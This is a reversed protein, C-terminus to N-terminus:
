NQILELRRLYDRIEERLFRAFHQTALNLPRNQAFVLSMTSEIEPDVLRATFYREDEILSAVAGLPLITFFADQRILAIVTNFTDVEYQINLPLCIQLAHADIARRLGHHRSPLILQMDALLALSVPSALGAARASQSSALVYLPEKLIKETVLHPSLGADYLIALDIRGGILWEQITGSSGGQIQVQIRPFKKRFNALLTPVIAESLHLVLAFAVKGGPTDLNRAVGEQIDNVALLFTQASDLFEQGAPTPTVGRGNRTFLKTGFEKELQQLHRSLKPQDMDLLNAARSLSGQRAIELFYRLQDLRM